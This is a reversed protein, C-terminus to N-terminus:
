KIDKASDKVVGEANAVEEVLKSWVYADKDKDDKNLDNYPVLAPHVQYIHSTKKGYIYGMARVYANWRRHEYSAILDIKQAETMGNSIEDLMTERAIMYLSRAKSSLRNYEAFNYSTKDKYWKRRLEALKEKCNNIANTDGNQRIEELEKEKEKVKEATSLSWLMHVAEGMRELRPQAVNELRYRSNHDGIFRIRYDTDKRILVRGNALHEAKDSDYVTCLIYPRQKNEPYMIGFFRSLKIATDVNTKDDGLTVFALTIRDKISMVEERFDASNVDIPKNHFQLNYRSEGIVDNISDAFRPNILEPSLARVKSECDADGDMAHITLRYGPMQCFWCLTQLLERGYGGLGVILINIDRLGDREPLASSFIYPVSDHVSTEDHFSSDVANEEINLEEAGCLVTKWIYNRKEDVRRLRVNVEFDSRIIEEDKNRKIIPNGKKDKPIRVNDICSDLVIGSEESIAFAYIQTQPDNYGNNVCKDFLKMAQDVNNDENEGILYLKRYMKRKPSKLSIETIDMGLCIAGLDQAREVLDPHEEQFNQTVNAFILTRRVKKEQRNKTPDIDTKCRKEDETLVDEDRYEYNNLIDYALALSNENLESMIYLKQPNRRIYYRWKEYLGKILSLVFAGTLLPAIVYYCAFAVTYIGKFASGVDLMGIVDRVNGFDADVVFLRLANHICLFPLKLYTSWNQPTELDNLYIPVFMIAASVFIGIVLWSFSTFVGNKNSRKKKGDTLKDDAFYGRSKKVNYRIWQFICVFTAGLALVLCPICYALPNM